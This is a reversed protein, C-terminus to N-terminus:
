SPDRKLSGIGLSFDREAPIESLPPEPATRELAADVSMNELFDATPVFFLNGTM